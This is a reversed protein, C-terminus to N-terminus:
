FSSVELTLAEDAGHFATEYPLKPVYAKFLLIRNPSGPDTEEIELTGPVSFRRFVTCVKHFGICVVACLQLSSM